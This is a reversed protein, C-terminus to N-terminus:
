SDLYGLSELREQIEAEDVDVPQEDAAEVRGLTEELVFTVYREVSDYTTRELRREVRVALHEPLEVTRSGARREDEADPTSATM